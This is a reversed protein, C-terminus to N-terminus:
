GQWLKFYEDQMFRAVEQASYGAGRMKEATNERPSEAAKQLADAWGDAGLGLTLATVLGTIDAEKAVTDSVVCPLGAAQAEVMVVPLGEYLSPLCFVDLANLLLPVQGCDELFRVKGNIGMQQAKQKVEDLLPGTGALLLCAEPQKKLLKAFIELLYSQNKVPYFRGINGIALTGDELGFATRGEARRQQTPEFLSIDIANHVVLADNAKKGFLWRAADSGCAWRHTCNGNVYLGYYGKVLKYAINGDSATNHSHAIRVPVGCQKAVRMVMGSFKDMHSHVIHYQPNGLLIQRLNKAYTFPGNETIFPIRHIVGGLGEIEEDYVGPISSVFDFQVKERDIKRYINMIFTEYGGRAMGAVCHLVRIQAM